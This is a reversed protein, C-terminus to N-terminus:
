DHVDSRRIDTANVRRAPLTTVLRAVCASRTPPRSWAGLSQMACGLQCDVSRRISGRLFMRGRSCQEAFKRPGGRTGAGIEIRTRAGSFGAIGLPEAFRLKRAAFLAIAATRM